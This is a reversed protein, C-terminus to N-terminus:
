LHYLLLGHSFIDLFSYILYKLNLHCSIGKSNLYCKKIPGRKYLFSIIWQDDYYTQLFPCQLEDCVALLLFYIKFLLVTASIDLLPCIPKECFHNISITNALHEHRILILGAGEAPCLIKNQRSHNKWLHEMYKHHIGAWLICHQDTATLSATWPRRLWCHSVM